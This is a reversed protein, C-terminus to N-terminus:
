CAAGEDAAGGAAAGTDDHLETAIRAQEAEVANVLAAMVERSRREASRLATVDIMAGQVATRAGTSDFVVNAKLHVHRIEDSPTVMRVQVDYSDALGAYVPGIRSQAASRDDPRIYGMRDASTMQSWQEVRLGMLDEVQPSVYLPAGDLDTVFTVMPLQEVLTQHLHLQADLDREAQVRDTIDQILGQRFWPRGQEDVVQAVHDAVWRHSGDACLIRYQAQYSGGARELDMVGSRELEVVDEPHVFTHWWEAASDTALWEQESYGFM